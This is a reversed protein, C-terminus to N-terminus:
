KLVQKINQCIEFLLSGEIPMSNLYHYMKVKKHQYNIESILSQQTKMYIMM